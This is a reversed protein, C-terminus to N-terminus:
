EGKLEITSGDSRIESVSYDRSVTMVDEFILSLAFGGLSVVAVFIFFLWYRSLFTMLTLAEAHQKHPLYVAEVDPQVQEPKSAGIHRLDVLGTKIPQVLTTLKMRPVESAYVKERRFREEGQTSDTHLHATVIALARRVYARIAWGVFFVFAILGGLVQLLPVIPLVYFYTTALASQKADKGYGITVEATYRGIDWLGADSEWTFSFKRISEPLVNGYDKNQNIPITGRIKGFMNYIVISGQPVLHVNGQNEFRLSLKATATDYVMEETVFDRIQGKEIVDGSVSLFILAAISSTVNVTNGEQEQEESARNGILIAAYHGGPSADSPVTITIPLKYTQERVISFAEQPVTIWGALTSSSEEGETPPTIFVPRGSEGSPRFLVPDAFLSLDYQNNNVVTIYSSWTEGPQLNLQFLPPAITLSLGMEEAHLESVNPVFVLLSCVFVICARVIYNKYSKRLRTCNSKDATARLPAFSSAGLCFPVLQIFLVVLSMKRLAVFFHSWNKNASAYLFSTSKHHVTQTLGIKGEHYSFLIEM